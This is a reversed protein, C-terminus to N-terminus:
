WSIKGRGRFNRYIRESEDEKAFVPKLGKDELEKVAKKVARNFIENCEKAFQQNTM